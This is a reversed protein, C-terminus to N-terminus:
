DISIINSRVYDAVVNTALDFHRARKSFSSGNALAIAGTNDCHVKTAKTMVIGIESLLNRMWIISKSIKVLGYYESETTFQAIASQMESM